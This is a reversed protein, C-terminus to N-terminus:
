WTVGEGKWDLFRGADDRTLGEIAKLLGGVSEEPSLPANAGGIRTRAWGPHVVVSVIGYQLVDSAFIRMYMNLAAKSASYGYGHAPTRQTFSGLVSTINIVKPSRGNRLLDLYGQAIIIPAVSNIRLINLLASMDLTGLRSLKESGGSGPTNPSIGANNILIDLADTHRHVENWSDEISQPDSVDLKIITLRDSHGTALNALDLAHEPDRATAFVRDGRALLQRTFELGLGRNAGTILV